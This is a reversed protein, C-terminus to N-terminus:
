NKPIVETVDILTVRRELKEKSWSSHRKVIAEQEEPAIIEKQPITANFLSGAEEPSNARYFERSDYTGGKSDSGMVFLNLIRNKAGGFTTVNYSVEYITEM